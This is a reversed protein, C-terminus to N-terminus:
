SRRDLARSLASAVREVDERRLRAHFPIVLTTDAAHETVPLPGRLCSGDLYPPQQHIAPDFYAKAEIRQDLLTQVLEDRDHRASTRLFYVFWAPDAGPAPAPLRLPSDALEQQYWEAVVRRRVLIEGARRMQAVGVAASLEDMRYNFGLQGHRLWPDGPTRGQNRLSDITAHLEDGSGLVAGGEGTTLQKNPYFALVMLDAETGAHHVADDSGRYRSGFAECSDAILALGRERAIATIRPWDAPHGFVDVVLVAAVRRGSVPDELGRDTVHCSDLYATLADPSLCLTDPDIDVFVPEAGVYRICNASAIFSFSSTVVCDGAGIGLARVALHLGATGSSVASAWPLGVFESLGREFAETKPGLALRGSRLVELVEAEEEPGIDPLAATLFTELDTAPEPSAPILEPRMTM